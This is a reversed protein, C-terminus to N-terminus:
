VGPLQGEALGWFPLTSAPIKSDLTPERISPVVLLSFASLPTVTAGSSMQIDKVVCLHTFLLTMAVNLLIQARPPNNPPRQLETLQQTEAICM